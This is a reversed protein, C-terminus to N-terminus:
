CAEQTLNSKRLYYWVVEGLKQTKKFKDLFNNTPCKSFKEEIIEDFLMDKSTRKLGDFIIGDITIKYITKTDTKFQIDGTDLTDVYKVVVIQKTVDFYEEFQNKGLPEQLPTIEMIM